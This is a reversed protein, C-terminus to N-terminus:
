LVFLFLVFTLHLSSVSSIKLSIRCLILLHFVRPSHTAEKSTSNSSLAARGRSKEAGFVASLRDWNVATMFWRILLFVCTTTWFRIVTIKAIVRAFRSRKLLKFIKEATNPCSSRCVGSYFGAVESTAISHTINSSIRITIELIHVCEYCLCKPRVFNLVINNWM